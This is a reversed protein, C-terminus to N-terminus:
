KGTLAVSFESFAGQSNCTVYNDGFGPSNFYCHNLDNKWGHHNQPSQPPVNAVYGYGNSSTPLLNVYYVNGKRLKCSKSLKRITYSYTPIQNEGYASITANGNSSCITKGAQGPKTGFQVAFPTPNVGTYGGTLLEVFTAGTVTVDRSPKVGVWVQGELSNGEDNANFLGNAGSYNSDFDGAYYLCSSPPCFPPYYSKTKVGPEARTQTYVAQTEESLAVVAPTSGSQAASLSILMATIPLAFRTKRM